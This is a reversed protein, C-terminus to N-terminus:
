TVDESNDKGPKTIQFLMARKWRIPFVGTNLCGNYMATIYKPFIELANKYIGGTIGDEGPAKKNGLSGISNRIEVTTFGKDDATSIPLQSQLTGQRHDDDDDDNKNDEPTFHELMHRLTNATDM